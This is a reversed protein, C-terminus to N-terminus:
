FQRRIKRPPTCTVPDAVKNERGVGLARGNACSEIGAYRTLGLRGPFAIKSLLQSLRALLFHNV